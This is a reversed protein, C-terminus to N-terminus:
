APVRDSLSRYLALHADVFAAHSAPRAAGALRDWLAPAEAADRLTEALAAADGPPVHLGDVGDRVLEAM